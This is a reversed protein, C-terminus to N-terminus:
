SVNASWVDRLAFITNLQQLVTRVSPTTINMMAAVFVIEIMTMIAEISIKM